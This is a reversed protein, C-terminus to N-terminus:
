RRPGDEAPEGKEEAKNGGRSCSRSPALLHGQSSPAGREPPLRAPTPLACPRGAARPSIGAATVHSPPTPSRSVDGSSPHTRCGVGTEQPETRRTNRRGRHNACVSSSGQQRRSPDRPGRAPAQNVILLNGGLATDAPDLLRPVRLHGDAAQLTERAQGEESRMAAPGWTRTRSEAGPRRGGVRGCPRQM